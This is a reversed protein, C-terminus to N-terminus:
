DIEATVQRLKQAVEKKTKGTISRQIQKGTAPDFGATYRAQWYTYTKGNKENTIKRISGAGNTGRGATKMRPM